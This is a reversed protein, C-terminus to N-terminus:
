LPEGSDIETLTLRPGESTSEVDLAVSALVEAVETGVFVPLGDAETIQDDEAPVETFTLGLAVEGGPRPEGFVRLGASEPLSRERRVEMLQTAAAHTVQFM